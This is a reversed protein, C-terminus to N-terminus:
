KSRRLLDQLIFDVKGLFLLQILFSFYAWSVWFFIGAGDLIVHIWFTLDASNEAGPLAATDLVTVAVWMALAAPFMALPMSMTLLEVYTLSRYSSRSSSSNSVSSNIILETVEPYKYFARLGMFLGNHGAFSLLYFLPILPLARFGKSEVRSYLRCTAYLLQIETILVYLLWLKLSWGKLVSIKGSQVDIKVPFINAKSLTHVCLTNLKNENSTLM